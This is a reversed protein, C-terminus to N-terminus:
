TLFSDFRRLLRPRLPHAVCLCRAAVGTQEPRTEVQRRQQRDSRLAPKAGEAFAGLRFTGTAVEIPPPGVAGLDAPDYRVEYKHRAVSLIDGPDLRKEDVRVSNVKTGNRSNQDIVYWYGGKVVMKCHHASVNAFRLVIDCSERRGILLERKLLPIPDGGGLPVLEGNMLLENRLLIQSAILRRSRAAPLGPRIKSAARPPVKRSFAALRLIFIM